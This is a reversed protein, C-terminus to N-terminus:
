SRSLASYNEFPLIGGALSDIDHNVDFVNLTHVSSLFPTRTIFLHLVMNHIKSCHETYQAPRFSPQITHFVQSPRGTPQAYIYRPRQCGIYVWGNFYVDMARDPVDCGEVDTLGNDSAPYRSRAYAGCGAIEWKISM